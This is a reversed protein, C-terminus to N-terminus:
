RGLGNIYDYLPVFKLCLDNQSLERVDRGPDTRDCEKVDFSTLVPPIM